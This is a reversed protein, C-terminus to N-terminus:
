DRICDDQNFKRVSSFFQIDICCTSIYQLLAHSGIGTRLMKKSNEPYRNHYGYEFGAEMQM